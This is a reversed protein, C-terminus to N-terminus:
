KRRSESYASAEARTTFQTSQGSPDTADLKPNRLFEGLEPHEQIAKRLANRMKENM